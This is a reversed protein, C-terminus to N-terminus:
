LLGSKVIEEVRTHLSNQEERTMGVVEIPEHIFVEVRAPKIRNKNSEMIKYSGNITVPVIPAGSKTALKFSGAKFEGMPGGKARTGEPFVVMSYGAKLIGIAEIITKMSQKMDNRDLFVCQIAQMWDRILPLKLTEIKAVFGVHKPIKALFIPIDFNGQHNSVFLVNGEPIREPNHIIFEAGSDRLRKAAWDEVVPFAYADYAAQGQEALIQKSKKLKPNLGILDVVFKTYWAISRFM